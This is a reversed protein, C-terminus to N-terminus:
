PNPGKQLCYTAEYVYVTLTGTTSVCSWGLSPDDTISNNSWPAAASTFLFGHTQDPAPTPATTGVPIPECLMNGAATWNWTWGCRKSADMIVVPTSTGVTVAVGSSGKPNIVQARPETASWVVVLGLVVALPIILRTFRRM